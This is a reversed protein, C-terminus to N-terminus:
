GFHMLNTISHPIGRLDCKIPKKEDSRTEHLVFCVYNIVNHFYPTKSTVDSGASDSGASYPPEVSADRCPRKPSERGPYNTTRSYNGNM